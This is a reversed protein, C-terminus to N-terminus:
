ERVEEIDIVKAELTPQAWEPLELKHVVTVKQEARPAIVGLMRELSESAELCVKNDQVTRQDCVQGEHAFYRVTHANVLSRKKAWAEKLAAVQEAEDIQALDMLRTRQSEAGMQGAPPNYVVPAVSKPSSM